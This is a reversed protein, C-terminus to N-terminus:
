TYKESSPEHVHANFQLANFRRDSPDGYPLNRQVKPHKNRLTLQELNVYGRLHKLCDTSLSVCVNRQQAAV